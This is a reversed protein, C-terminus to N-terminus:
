DNDFETFVVVSNRGNAKGIYLAKDANSLNFELSKKLDITTIGFTCTSVIVTEELNCPTKEVLERLNETVKVASIMPTNPLLIAFEEGGIRYFTDSTRLKYSIVQVIHKIVNDGYIHGHTDNVLKFKDIDLIVIVHDNNTEQEQLDRYCHIFANRNLLGTLYDKNAMDNLALVSKELKILLPTVIFLQFILFASCVIIASCVIHIHITRIPDNSELTLKNIFYVYYLSITLLLVTPVVLIKKFDKKLSRSHNM